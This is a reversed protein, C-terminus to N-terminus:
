YRRIKGILENIANAMLFYSIAFVIAILIGGVLFNKKGKKSRQYLYLPYGIIWFLLVVLFYLVPGSETKKGEDTAKGFGLENAEYAALIATILITGIGIINLKSGPNELLTMNYVWLWMLLIAIVPILLLIYGINDSADSKAEAEAAPKESLDSGCHKCKIAVALIEEGCFPCKKTEEAM